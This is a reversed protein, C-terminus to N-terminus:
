RAGATCSPCWCRGDHLADDLLPDGYRGAIVDVAGPVPHYPAPEPLGNRPLSVTVGLPHLLRRPGDTGAELAPEAM